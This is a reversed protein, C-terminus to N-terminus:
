HWIRLWSLWWSGNNLNVDAFHLDTLRRWNVTCPIIFSVIFYLMACFAYPVYLTWRNFRLRLSYSTFFLLSLLSFGASTTLLSLNSSNSLIITTAFVYWKLHLMQIRLAWRVFQHSPIMRPFLILNLFLSFERLVLPEDIFFLFYRVLMRFSM